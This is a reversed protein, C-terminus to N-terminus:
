DLDDPMSTTFIATLDLIPTNQQRHRFCSIAFGQWQKNHTDPLPCADADRVTIKHPRYRLMLGGYQVRDGKQEQYAFIGIIPKKLTIEEGSLLRNFNVIPVLRQRWSIVYQCYNPTLPVPLLRAETFVDELEYHASAAVITDDFDLLWAECTDAM